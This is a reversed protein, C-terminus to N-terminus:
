AAPGCSGRVDLVPAFLRRTEHVPEGKIRRVLMDVASTAIEHIPQRVSALPPDTHDCYDTSDFGVVSLDGPVSLGLRRAATMAVIAIEDSYAFIATPRDPQQLVEAVAGADAAPIPVEVCWDERPAIGAAQLAHYHGKKRDVAAASHTPGTLHLIRRHGLGLLHETALRGGMVDDCEVIWARPNVSRTFMLVCPFGDALLLDALPDNVDRLLLAGDARGDRIFAFEQELSDSEKTHLMLDYGATFAAEAVGRMMENTFGSWGQFIRAYQMVVAITDTKKSNLARAHANPRYNLARVAAHVRARTAETIRVSTERDNLVYSVTAKSVGAHKAVDDITAM